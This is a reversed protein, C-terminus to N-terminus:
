ILRRLKLSAEIVKEARKAKLRISEGENKLLLFLDNESIRTSTTSNIEFIQDGPELGAEGAPSDPLVHRIVFNGSMTHSFSFGAMGFEFPENFHHNPELYMRKRSYDFIVNFQCLTMNGLNGEKELPMFKEVFFSTVLNNLTYKGLSLSRIRGAQAEIEGSIGRAWVPVTKEPAVLKPKSGINLSLAHSAGLDVVLEVPVRQGNLLEVGATIRPFRDNFILPVASGSPPNHFDGPESFTIIDRDNDIKVVFRSFLAYGIIGDMMVGLLSDSPLQQLMATQERLQLTGIEISVIQVEGAASENGGFGPYFVDQGTTDSYFASTKPNEFLLVGDLPMGTDVVLNFPGQGNITALIHVHNVSLDFPIETKKQDTLWTYTGSLEGLKAPNCIQQASVASCILFFLAANIIINKPLTM